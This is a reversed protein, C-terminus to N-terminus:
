PETVQLRMFRKNSASAPQSDQVTITGPAPTGNHSYLTSWTTTPDNTAEVTYTVDTAVGTFTLTLYNVGSISQIKTVPAATSGTTFYNVTPNMGLAYKLLNPFGDAAPDATDAVGNAVTPNLGAAGFYTYRWGVIGPPVYPIASAVSSYASTGLPYSAAIQYYYTQSALLAPDNDTYTTTPANVMTITSYGSNATTSRQILYTQAGTSASWNLVIQGASTGPAATLGTPAAPQPILNFKQNTGGNTGWQDFQTGTTTSAGPDDFVLGSNLNFFSYTGDSNKVPLWQDNRASGFSWQVLKGGYQTSGNQVVMDLGSNVNKIQYYGGSTPVFTWLSNTGGNFSSQVITAGNTTSAGSVSMALSSAVCQLEYNGSFNTAPPVPMVQWIAVASACELADPNTDTMVNTWDNWTLNLTASATSRESWAANANATMWSSYQSWLNNDTCFDSLGRVFWYAWESGGGEATNHLIANNNVVHNVALLADNYYSATGTLRHLYNAAEVFTGSNYVNNSNLVHSSTSSPYGSFGLGEVIQGTSTNFLNNRVWAYVAQSKTLYTSDGTAQYLFCGSIVFPDNSLAVKSAKGDYVGQANPKLDDMLEWIGGGGYTTDWGRNYVMNWNNEAATLFATNGTIRYGRICAIVAWEVDDNWSDWSWDTGNQALFTTLLSNILQLTAPNHTHEYADEDIVIDLAQGWFFVPTRDALTHAYFTSNGSQVLFATHWANYSPVSEDQARATMSSLFLAAAALLATALSPMSNLKINKLKPLSYM